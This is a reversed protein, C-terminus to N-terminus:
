HCPSWNLALSCWLMADFLVASSVVQCHGHSTFVAAIFMDKSPYLLGMNPMCVGVYHVMRYKTVMNYYPHLEIKRAYALRALKLASAGM